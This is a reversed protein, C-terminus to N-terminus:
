STHAGCLDSGALLSRDHFQLVPDGSEGGLSLPQPRQVRPPQPELLVAELEDVSM